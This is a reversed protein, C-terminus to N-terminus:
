RKESTYYLNEIFNSFHNCVMKSKLPSFEDYLYVPPDDGANVDFYWFMIGQMMMFVYDSKSLLAIEGNENLLELAWENLSFVENTFCSYGSLFRNETGEGMTRLFEIYAEPLRGYKEVIQNIKSEQM